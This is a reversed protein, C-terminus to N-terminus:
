NEIMNGQSDVIVQEGFLAKNNELLPLHSYVLEQLIVQELTDFICLIHVDEKSQVEMGPLYLIGM